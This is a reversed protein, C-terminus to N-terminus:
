SVQGGRASPCPSSPIQILAGKPRGASLCHLASTMHWQIRVKNYEPVDEGGLYKLINVGRVM